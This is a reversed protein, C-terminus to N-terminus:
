LQKLILVLTDFIFKPNAGNRYAAFCKDFLEVVDKIKDKSRKPQTEYTNNFHEVFENIIDEILFYDKSQNYIHNLTEKQERFTKNFFDKPLINSNQSPYFLEFCRSRVTELLALPSRTPLVFLTNESPEELVKLLSNQAEHSLTHAEHILALRITESQFGNWEILERVQEISINKKGIERKIEKSNNINTRKLEKFGPKTKLFDIIEQLSVSKKIELIIGQYFM